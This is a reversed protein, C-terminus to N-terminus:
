RITMTKLSVKSVKLHSKSRNAASLDSPQLTGDSERPSTGTYLSIQDIADAPM